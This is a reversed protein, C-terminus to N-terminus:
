TMNKLLQGYMLLVDVIDIINSRISKQCLVIDLFYEHDALDFFILFIDKSFLMLIFFEKLFILNIFFILFFHVVM